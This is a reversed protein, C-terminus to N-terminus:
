KKIISYDGQNLWVISLAAVKVGPKEGAPPLSAARESM